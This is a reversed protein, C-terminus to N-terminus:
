WGKPRRARKFFKQKPLKKAITSGGTRVDRNEFTWQFNDINGFLGRGADMQTLEESKLGEQMEM